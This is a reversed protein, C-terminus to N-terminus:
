GRIAEKVEGIREKLSGDYVTDGIKIKVGGLLSLNLAYTTQLIYYTSSLSQTVKLLQAKTLPIAAEVELTTKALERKIGKLYESLAFIAFYRPLLKLTKLFEKVKKENIRGHEFSAEIAKHVLNLLRKDRKM